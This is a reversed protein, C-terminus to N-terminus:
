LREKKVMDSKEGGGYLSNFDFMNISQGLLQVGRQAKTGQHEIRKLRSLSEAYKERFSKNLNRMREDTSQARVSKQELAKISGQGPNQGRAGAIARQSALTERLTTLDQLTEQQAALSEQKMRLKVSEEDLALGKSEIRNQARNAYLNAGIGAAQAALLIFPFAM